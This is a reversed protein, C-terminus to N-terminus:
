QKSLLSALYPWLLRIAVAVQEAASYQPLHSGGKCCPPCAGPMLASGSISSPWVEM